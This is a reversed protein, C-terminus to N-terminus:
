ASRDRLRRKTHQDAPYWTEIRCYSPVIEHPAGYVSQFRMFALEGRRTRVRILPVPNENCHAAVGLDFSEKLGDAHTALAPNVWAEAALQRHLSRAVDLPNVLGSALGHEGTLLEFHHRGEIVRDDFDGSQATEALLTRFGSNAEIVLWDCDLLLAPYPAHMALLAALAHRNDSAGSWFGPDSKPDAAGASYGARILAANVLSEPAGTETLWDILLNRGPRALGREVFGIHRLSYGLRLSMELQSLRARSRAFRLIDGVRRTPSLAQSTSPAPRPAQM